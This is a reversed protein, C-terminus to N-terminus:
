LFPPLRNASGLFLQPAEQCPGAATVKSWTPFTLEGHGWRIGLKPGVEQADNNTRRSHEFGLELWRVQMSSPMPTPPARIPTATPTPPQTHEELSVWLFRSYGGSLVASTRARSPAASMTALRFSPDSLSPGVAPRAEWRALRHDAGDLTRAEATQTGLPPWAAISALDNALVNGARMTSCWITM